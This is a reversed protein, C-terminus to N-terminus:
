VGRFMGFFAVVADTAECFEDTNIGPETSVDKFSQAIHAISSDAHAIVFKSICGSCIQHSVRKVTKYFPVPGEVEPQTTPPVQTEAM